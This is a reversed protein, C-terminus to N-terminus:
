RWRLIELEHNKRYNILYGKGVLKLLPLDSLSDSFMYSNKFDVEINDKKLEEMLRKVKEEGKCNEGSIKCSFKGDNMQFKTGIVKDVEKINYFENVYFEPSASILYIKYGKEKFDKIAKIGDEYLISELKEKYFSKVIFKLEDESTGSLFRLFNEKTRGANYVKLGYFLGTIIHSPLYKLLKKDKKLMYKYLEISTEKKTLTYDIDFIALKEM